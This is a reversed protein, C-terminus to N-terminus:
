FPTLQVRMWQNSSVCLYLYVGDSAMTWPNCSATSSLPVAAFVPVATTDLSLVTQGPQLLMLLGPGQVSLNDRCLFCRWDTGGNVVWNGNVAQWTYLPIAGSPFGNSTGPPPAVCPGDDDCMVQLTGSTGFNVAGPTLYVYLMGTGSSLTLRIAQTLQQIKGEWGYNCPNVVSCIQGIILVTSSLYHVYFDGAKHLMMTGAEAVANLNLSLNANGNSNLVMSPFPTCVPTTQGPPVVM